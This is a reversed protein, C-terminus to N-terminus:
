YLGNNHKRYLWPYKKKLEADSELKMQQMQEPTISALAKKIDIGELDKSLKTYFEQNCAICINWLSGTCHEGPKRNPNKHM